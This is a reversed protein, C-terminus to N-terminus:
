LLNFLIQNVSHTLLGLIVSHYQHPKMVITRACAVIPRLQNDAVPMVSSIRRTMLERLTLLSISNDFWIILLQRPKMGTEFENHLLPLFFYYYYIGRLAASQKYALRIVKRTTAELEKLDRETMRPKSWCPSTFFSFGNKVRFLSFIHSCKRRKWFYQLFVRLTTLVSLNEM